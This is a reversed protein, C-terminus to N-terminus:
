YMSIYLKKYSYSQTHSYTVGIDMYKCACKWWCIDLDNDSSILMDYGLYNILHRDNNKNIINGCTFYKSMHNSIGGNGM